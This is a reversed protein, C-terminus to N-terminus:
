IIRGQLTVKIECVVEQNHSDIAWLVLSHHSEMDNGEWQLHIGEEDIQYSSSVALKTGASDFARPIMPYIVHNESEPVSLLVTEESPCKEFYPQGSLTCFDM